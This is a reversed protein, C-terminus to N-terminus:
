FLNAQGGLKRTGRRGANSRLAYRAPFQLGSFELRLNIRRVQRGAPPGLPPSALFDIDTDAKILAPHYFINLM